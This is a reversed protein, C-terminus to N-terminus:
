EPSVVGSDEPVVEAALREIDAQPDPGPVMLYAVTVGLDREVGRLQEVLAAPGGAPDYAAATTKEIADFDRSEAECRGRLVELKHTIDAGSFLNCADAYRAVLRLTKQEGGGGIM